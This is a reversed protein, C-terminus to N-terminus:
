KSFLLVLIIKSLTDNIFNFFTVFAASSYAPMATFIAKPSIPMIAKHIPIIFTASSAPKILDIAFKKFGSVLHNNGFIGDSWGAIPEIIIFM